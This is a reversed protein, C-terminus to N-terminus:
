RRERRERERKGSTLYLVLSPHNHQYSKCIEANFRVGGRISEGMERERIERNGVYSNMAVNEGM